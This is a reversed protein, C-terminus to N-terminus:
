QLFIDKEGMQEDKDHYQRRIMKEQEELISYKRTLQLFNV